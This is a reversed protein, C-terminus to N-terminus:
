DSKRVSGLLMNSPKSIPEKQKEFIVSKALRAIRTLRRTKATLHVHQNASPTEDKALSM